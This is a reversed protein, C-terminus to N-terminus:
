QNSKKKRKATVVKAASIESDSLQGDHNTDLAAMASYVSRLREAEEGDIKSDKNRDFRGLVRAGAAGRKRGGGAYSPVAAGLLAILVLALPLTRTIMEALIYRLCQPKPCRPAIGRPSRLYAGSVCTGRVPRALLPSESPM